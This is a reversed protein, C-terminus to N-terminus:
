WLGDDLCAFLTELVERFKVSMRRVEPAIGFSMSCNPIGALIGDADYLLLVVL